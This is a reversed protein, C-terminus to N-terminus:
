SQEAGRHVASGETPEAFAWEPLAGTGFLQDLLQAMSYHPDIALAQDVFMGGISGRGLAWSLWALMCLPAPRLSRPALAVVTKLLAIAHDVQGVDPRVRSQGLILTSGTTDNATPNTAAARYEAEVIEDLSLGTDRQVLEYHVNSEHITVGAAHGFGFQLMMQDRQAPRQSVVLLTAADTMPPSDTNWNRAAEVLGVPDLVAGFPGAFDAQAIEAHARGLVRRAARACQERATRSVSPLEAGSRLSALERAAEVPLSTHVSSATIESLPHTREPREPDFYEGWADTGVCLADRVSFGSFRAREILTDIFHQHPLEATEAVLADTYVVPIVGQVGPIKCVTGILTTAIRKLVAHPAGPEPLNFRMAGCTRNGRFAVLAVSNEPVFGLLQPVLALFDCANTITILTSPTSPSM